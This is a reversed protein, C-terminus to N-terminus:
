APPPTRLPRRCCRTCRTQASNTRSSPCTCSPPPPAAPRRCRLGCSAVTLSTPRSTGCVQSLALTLSRSLGLTSHPRNVSAFGLGFMGPAWLHENFFDHGGTVLVVPVGAPWAWAVEARCCGGNVVVVPLRCGLRWLAPLTVQGGRSGCVLCAIAAEAVPRVLQVADDHQLQSVAEAAAVTAAAWEGSGSGGGGGNGSDLPLPKISDLLSVDVCAITRAEPDFLCSAWTALNRPSARAFGIQNVDIGSAEAEHESLAVGHMHVWGPPYRRGHIDYLPDAAIYLGHSRRLARGCHGSGPAIVLVPPLADPEEEVMASAERWASELAREQRRHFDLSRLNFCKILCIGPRAVRGVAGASKGKM